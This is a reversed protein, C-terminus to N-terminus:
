LSVWAHGERTETQGRPLLPPCLRRWPRSETWHVPAKLTAKLTSWRHWELPRSVPLSHTRPVDSMVDMTGRQPRWALSSSLRPELPADVLRLVVCAPVIPLSSALLSLVLPSPPTVPAM